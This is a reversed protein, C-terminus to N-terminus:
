SYRYMNYTVAQGIIVDRRRRRNDDDDDDDRRRRRCRFLLLLFNLGFFIFAGAIHTRNRPAMIIIMILRVLVCGSFDYMILVRCVGGLASKKNEKRSCSPARPRVCVVPLTYTSCMIRVRYAIYHAFSLSSDQAHTTKKKLKKIKMWVVVEVRQFITLHSCGASALNGSKDSSGCCTYVVRVRAHTYM